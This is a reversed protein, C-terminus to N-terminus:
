IAFTNETVIVTNDTFQLYKHLNMNKHFYNLSCFTPFISSQM